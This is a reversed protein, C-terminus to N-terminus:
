EAFPVTMGSETIQTGTPLEHIFRNTAARWSLPMHNVNTLSTMPGGLHISVTAKGQSEIIPHVIENVDQIAFM